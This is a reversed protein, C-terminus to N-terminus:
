SSYMEFGNMAVSKRLSSSNLTRGGVARLLAMISPPLGVARNQIKTGGAPDESGCQASSVLAYTSMPYSVKAIVAEM